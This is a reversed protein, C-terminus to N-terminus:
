TRVLDKDGSGGLEEDGAVVRQCGWSPLVVEALVGAGFRALREEHTVLLM